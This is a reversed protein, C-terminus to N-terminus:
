SVPVEAWTLTAEYTSGPAAPAGGLGIYVGPPVILGGNFDHDITVPYLGTASDGGPATVGITYLLTPAVVTTTTGLTFRGRSSLGGGVLANVASVATFASIPSGTAIQSGANPLYSLGIGALAETGGSVIAMMLKNLILNVGSGQPNWLGFFQGTANFAPVAVGAAATSGIFCQGNLALQAFFGSPLM